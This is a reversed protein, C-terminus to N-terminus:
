EKFTFFLNIGDFEICYRNLVDRGILAFDHSWSYVQIPKIDNNNISVDIIYPTSNQDGGFGNFIQMRGTPKVGIKNLLREPIITCSAGTDLLSKCAVTKSRNTPNSLVIQIYPAHSSGNISEYSYVM